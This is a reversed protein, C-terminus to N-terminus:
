IRTGYYSIDLEECIAKLTTAHYGVEFLTKVILDTGNVEAVLYVGETNKRRIRKVVLSYQETHM